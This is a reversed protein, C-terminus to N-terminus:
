LKWEQWLLGNARAWERAAEFPIRRAGEDASLGGRTIRFHPIEGRDCVKRITAASLATIRGLDSTTLHDRNSDDM